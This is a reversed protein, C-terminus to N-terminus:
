GDSVKLVLVAIDDRPRGGQMDIAARELRAAISGADLGACGALLVGLNQEGLISGDPARAETVGDTYLVLADGPSLHVDAAELTVTEFLGLLTGSATGTEVTGDARLILAPPHGGSVIRATSTSPDYTAMVVTCFREDATQSRIAENLQRLVETPDPTQLAAARITYRALATLAAAEPGKGCVDGVVMAFIDGYPFVDYLDGGVRVADGAAHYRARVDAGPIAPLELPLLREQLTRAVHQQEAYLRANDVALSARRALDEALALDERTYRRGSDAMVLTIAGLTRGRAQLPLCMYSRFGMSKISALFEPDGGAASSLWEDAINPEFEPESTRIVRPAGRDASPDLDYHV